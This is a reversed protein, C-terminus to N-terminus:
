AGMSSYRALGARWALRQAVLAVLLWAGPILVDRLTIPAGLLARVPVDILYPFPTYLVVERVAEPFVALPAVVGSLFLFGIQWLGEISSAKETWFAAMAFAYQLVFRLVWALLSLALCAVTETWSPVFWAEPYLMFFFAVIVVTFPLRAAREAVHGGVYHWVPDAPQLLRPSLRGQVIDYEFEWVVWVVTLQRVLYVVLFYRGFEVPALPFAGTDAAKIWAGMSIFPLSMALAWLLLESRYVLMYAYYVELFARARRLFTM